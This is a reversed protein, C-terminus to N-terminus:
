FRFLLNVAPVTEIRGEPSPPAATVSLGMGFEPVFYYQFGGAFLVYSFNGGEVKFGSTGEEENAESEFKDYVLFNYRPHVFFEFGGNRWSAIPGAFLFQTNVISFGLGAGGIGAVSWGNTKKPYLFSYKGWAYFSFGFQVETGIGVDINPQIGKAYQFYPAPSLGTDIANLGEGLPSASHDVAFPAVACSTTLFSFALVFRGIGLM